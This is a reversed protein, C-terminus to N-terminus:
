VGTLTVKPKKSTLGIDPRASTIGIGPAASSLAMSVVGTAIIGINSWNPISNAYISLQEINGYTWDIIM